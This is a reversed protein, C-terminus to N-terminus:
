NQIFKKAKYAALRSINRLNEEAQRQGECSPNYGAIFIRRPLFSYMLDFIINPLWFVARFM